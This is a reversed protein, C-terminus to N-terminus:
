SSRLGITFVRYLRHRKDGVRWSSAANAPATGGKIASTCLFEGNFCNASGTRQSKAWALRAHRLISHYALPSSKKRLKNPSGKQLVAANSLM